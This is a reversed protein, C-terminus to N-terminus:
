FNKTINQANRPWVLFMPEICYKSHKLCMPRKSVLSFDAIRHTNKPVKKPLATPVWKEDVKLGFRVGSDSFNRPDTVFSELDQAKLRWARHCFTSLRWARRRLAGPGTCLAGPGTVFHRLIDIQPTGPTCFVFPDTGLSGPGTVFHPLINM